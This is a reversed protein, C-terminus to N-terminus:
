FGNVLFDLADVIENRYRSLNAVPRTLLERPVSVMQETMAVLYEDRYTIVPNLLRIAKQGRALPIVVRTSLLRHLDNQIELLYPIAEASEQHPNPYLDFQAM